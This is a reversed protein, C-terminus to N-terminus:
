VALIHTNKILNSFLPSSSIMEMAQQQSNKLKEIVRDNFYDVWCQIHYYYESIFGVDLKEKEKKNLEYTGLLVFRQNTEISKLCKSCVFDDVQKKDNIELSCNHKVPFKQTAKQVEAKKKKVMSCVCSQSKYLNRQKIAINKTVM